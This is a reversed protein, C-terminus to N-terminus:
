TIKKKECPYTVISKYLVIVEDKSGKTYIECVREILNELGSVPYGAFVM